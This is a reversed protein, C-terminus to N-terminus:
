MGVVATTPLLLDPEYIVLGSDNTVQWSSSGERASVHLQDGVKIQMNHWFGELSCKARERTATCELVIALRNPFKNVELVKCHQSESLDLKYM